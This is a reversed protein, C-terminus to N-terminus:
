DKIVTVVFNKQSTVYKLTLDFGLRLTPYVYYAKVALILNARYFEGPVFTRAKKLWEAVFFFTQRILFLHEEPSLSFSLCEAFNPTEM